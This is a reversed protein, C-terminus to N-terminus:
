WMVMVIMVVDGDGDGGGDGGGDGVTKFVTFRCLNYSVECWSRPSLLIEEPFQAVATPVTVPTMLEAVLEAETGAVM